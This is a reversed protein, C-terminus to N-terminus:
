GRGITDNGGLAKLMAVVAQLHRTQLDLQTAQRQMLLEKSELVQVYDAIGQNYRSRYLKYHRSTANLATQQAALQTGVTKLTSLQDAVERLATLITQNYENVAFDYEAYKVGLNARRAGADFIPLDVAGTIANNQSQVDFLHGLGLSQYSFLLSLNIDPFFRAKAVNIQSAAAQVRSKAAYIDPRQALLRAPLSSPLAVHYQQFAFQRTEIETAFPNKGLLVALQHRSLLEAQRYQELSLRAAQANAEITKVPIDSEIGQKARSSAIQLMQKNLQWRTKAVKVQAINGRLQFYTNAVAASIVLRAQASEAQAACAESVKALLLQRNKGWFDFEYNFNLGLMGINFTRGNFPPPALGFESFRQRQVYGNFDLSPWLSSAAGDTLYDARRVRTEAMQM